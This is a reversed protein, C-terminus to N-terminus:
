KKARKRRKQWKRFEQDFEPGRTPLAHIAHSGLGIGWGLLPWIAWFAHPSTTLNLIILFTNVCIYPILHPWFAARRERIFQQRETREAQETEMEAAVARVAAPDIGLEAAMSLLREESIERSALDGGPGTRAMARKLIEEAEEQKFQQRM